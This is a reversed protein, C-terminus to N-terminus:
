KYEFKKIPYLEILFNQLNLKTLGMVKNILPGVGGIYQSKIGQNPPPNYDYAIVRLVEHKWPTSCHKCNTERMLHISKINM